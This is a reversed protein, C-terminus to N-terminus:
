STTETPSPTAAPAPAGPTAAASAGPPLEYFIRGSMQVQIEGASATATTAAGGTEGSSGTGTFTLTDVRVARDLSYLRRLFDQLAFYGGGAQISLRVEALSAGEPPPKPLDPAVSVFSVGSSDAAEQVQFIFNPVQNTQPVLDRIKQLRAQLKPAEAQLSQLRQLEAQLSITRQQEAQVRSEGDSLEGQKPKVFLLFFAVLVVIVAAAAVIM